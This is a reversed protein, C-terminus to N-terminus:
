NLANKPICPMRAVMLTNVTKEDVGIHFLVESDCRDCRWVYQMNTARPHKPVVKFYHQAM